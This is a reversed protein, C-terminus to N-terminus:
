LGIMKTEGENITQPKKFKAERGDSLRFKNLNLSGKLVQLQAGDKQHLSVNIVIRQCFFFLAYVLLM